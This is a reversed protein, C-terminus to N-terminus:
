AFMRGYNDLFIYILIAMLSFEIFIDSYIKKKESIIDQHKRYQVEVENEVFRTQNFFSQSNDLNINLMSKIISEYEMKIM